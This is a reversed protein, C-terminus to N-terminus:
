ICEGAGWSGAGGRSFLTGVSFFCFLFARSCVEALLSQLQSMDQELSEFETLLASPSSLKKRDEPEADRVAELAIKEQFTAAYTFNVQAFYHMAERGQANVTRGTFAKVGLRDGKLETDVLLHIPKVEAKGSSNVHESVFRDLLTSAYNHQGGTSYWGVVSQRSNLKGQLEVMKKFEDVYIDISDRGQIYRIPFCDQVRLVSGGSSDRVVEGLLAGDVRQQRRDRRRHHDLIGFIALPHVDYSVQESPTATPPSLFFSMGGFPARAVSGAVRPAKCQAGRAPLLRYNKLKEAEAQSGPALAPWRRITPASAAPAHCARARQVVSPPKGSRLPRDRPPKQQCAGQFVPQRAPQSHRQPPLPDVLWTGRLQRFSAKM